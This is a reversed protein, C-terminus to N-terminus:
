EGVELRAALRMPLGRGIIRDQVARIDYAVRRLRIIRTKSDYIAYSAEPIRDRPQGLAGPNIILRISGLLLKINPSFRSATCDGDEDLSYVQPVHTHGALCYKTSFCDFNQSAVSNSLIYELVPERPSGHVLLFDDDEISDPLNELYQRDGDDLQGATWRVAEAADANFSSISLKGIAARDHNGAVCIHHTQKLLEICEHPDPGYGVVDGLCWFKDIREQTKIDDLVARFAELNAHIDAIIAYRM